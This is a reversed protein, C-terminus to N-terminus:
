KGYLFRRALQVAAVIEGADSTVGAGHLAGSFDFHRPLHKRWEQKQGIEPIRLLRTRSGAVADRAFGGCVERDLVADVV